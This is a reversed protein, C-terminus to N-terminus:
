KTFVKKAPGGKGQPVFPAMGGILGRRHGKERFKKPSHGVPKWTGKARM